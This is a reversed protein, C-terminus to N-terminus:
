GRLITFTVSKSASRQGGASAVLTARYNGPRLARRGIRGSFATRNTAAKARRTLTGLVITRKCNQKAGPRLAVCRRGARRGAFVQTIQIRVLAPASVSYRFASGRAVRRASVPTAARGVAFRRSTMSVGSLRPPAHGPPTHLPLAGTTPHKTPTASPMIRGVKNAAYETFWLAGDPGATIGEPNSNATPITYESVKGATTIRGVRNAYGETFWLAHDPGATIGQAGSHISPIAYETVTGGTSIRGINNGYFETFWLAGDPGAAIQDPASNSTPTAYESITGGTTIRGIKSASNELFWLAGDPGAAIGHPNPMPTPIPYETLQGNTAMRGIKNGYFEPFWLAGDAGAAIGFPYSSAKPLPSYETVTGGTTIRGIKNGYFETFWLAGGPGATIGFPHSYPTNAPYEIATGAITMRAINNAREETLWLAGDPGGTIGYPSSNATPLPYESVGAASAGSACFLGFCAVVFLVAVWVNVDGWRLVCDYAARSGSVAQDGADV